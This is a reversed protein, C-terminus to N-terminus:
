DLEGIAGRASCQEVCRRHRQDIIRRNTGIDCLTTHRTTRVAIECRISMADAVKSIFLAREEAIRLCATSEQHTYIRRM